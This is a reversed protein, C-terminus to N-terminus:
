EQQLRERIFGSLQQAIPPSFNSMVVVTYGSDWYMRLDCNMGPAGGGHGVVRKGEEFREEFGYAYKEDPGVEERGKLILETLEPNLLKHSRLAQDFKLLDPATSDGGGASSGMLPLSEYNSAWKGQQERLYGKSQNPQPKTKEFSDSDKMGAPKYIHERIYEFYNQGSVKEVVLGAVLMGANSYAWGKGPEFKLPENAFFQLYDRLSRLTDKKKDFEEGFYDGLGSTHTLLHHVTIKGATEKNPYDPLIQALTDTYKLKGQQVLQAVAVSTFMKNMSGIRFKTDLNNPINNERDALGYAKQFFPKGNKAMLVVGSFKDEAALRQALMEVDKALAEESERTPKAEPPAPAEDLTLESIREPSKPDLRLHVMAWGFGGKEKLLVKIETDSSQTVKYLDFGGGVMERFRLMNRAIMEPKAGRLVSDSYHEKIFQARREVDGANFTELWGRFLKEPPTSPTNSQARALVAFLLLVTVKKLM